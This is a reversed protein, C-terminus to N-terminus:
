WTAHWDTKERLFQTWLIQDTEGFLGLSGLVWCHALKSLSSCFTPLEIHLTTLRGTCLRCFKLWVLNLFVVAIVWDVIEILKPICVGFVTYRCTVFFLCYTMAHVSPQSSLRTEVGHDIFIYM